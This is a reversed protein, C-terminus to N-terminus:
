SVFWHFYHAELKYLNSHLLETGSNFGFAFPLEPWPAWIQLDRSKSRARGGQVEVEM